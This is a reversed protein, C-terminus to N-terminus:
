EYYSRYVESDDPRNGTLELLKNGSESCVYRALNYRECSETPNKNILSFSKMKLLPKDNKLSGMTDDLTSSVLCSALMVFMIKKLIQSFSSPSILFVVLLSCLTESVGKLPCIIFLISYKKNILIKNTTQLYYLYIIVDRLFLSFLPDTQIESPDRFRGRILPATERNIESLSNKYEYLVNKCIARKVFYLLNINNHCILGFVQKDSLTGIIHSIM